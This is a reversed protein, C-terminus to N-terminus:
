LPQTKPPPTPSHLPLFLFSFPVSPPSSSSPPSPPPSPRHCSRVLRLPVVLTWVAPFPPSSGDSQAGEEYGQRCAQLSRVSQPPKGQTNYTAKGAHQVRGPNLSWRRTHEKGHRACCTSWADPERYQLSPKESCDGEKLFFFVYGKEELEERLEFCKIEVRRKREHEM